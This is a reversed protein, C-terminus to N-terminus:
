PERDPPRAPVMDLAFLYLDRYIKVKSIDLDIDVAHFVSVPVAEVTMGMWVFVQGPGMVPFMAAMVGMMAAAPAAPREIIPLEPKHNERHDGLL